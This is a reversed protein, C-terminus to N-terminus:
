RAQPQITIRVRQKGQAATGARVVSRVRDYLIRDSRMTDNNQVVVADGILVLNETNVEYEARKASGKVPGSETDQSFRVPGGEAIMKSPRRGEHHVTVIDAQLRISGQRFDVNGKYISVGKSEDIDAFDASLEIPQQQDSELAPIGPALLALALLLHGKFRHM